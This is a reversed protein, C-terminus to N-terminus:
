QGYEHGVVLTLAHFSLLGVFVTAENPALGEFLLPLYLFPLAVAAWFGIFRLPPVFLRRSLDFSVSGLREFGNTTEDITSPSSM